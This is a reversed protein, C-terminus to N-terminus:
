QNLWNAYIALNDRTGRDILDEVPWTGYTLIAPVAIYDTLKPDRKGYTSGIQASQRPDLVTKLRM